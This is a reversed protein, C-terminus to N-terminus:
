MHMDNLNLFFLKPSKLSFLLGNSSYSTFSLASTCYNMYEPKRRKVKRRKEENELKVRRPYRIILTM